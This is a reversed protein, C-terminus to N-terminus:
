VEMAEHTLHEHDDDDFFHSNRGDAGVDQTEKALEALGAAQDPAAESPFATVMPQSYRRLALTPAPSRAENRPNIGMAADLQQDVEALLREIEKGALQSLLEDNSIPSLEQSSNCPDPIDLDTPNMTVGKVVRAFWFPATTCGACGHVLYRASM